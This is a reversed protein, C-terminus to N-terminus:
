RLFYNVLEREQQLSLLNSDPKSLWVGEGEGETKIMFYNMRAGDVSYEHIKKFSILKLGLSESFNKLARELPEGEVVRKSPLILNENQKQALVQNDSVIFM